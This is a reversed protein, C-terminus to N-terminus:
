QAYFEDAWQTLQYAECTFGGLRLSEEWFAASKALAENKYTEAEAYRQQYYLTLALYLAYAPNTPDAQYARRYAEEAKRLDFDRWKLITEPALPPDSARRLRYLELYGSDFDELVWHARKWM